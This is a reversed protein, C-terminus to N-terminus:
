KVATDHSVNISSGKLHVITLCMLWPTKIISVKNKDSSFKVLLSFDGFTSIKFILSGMGTVDTKLQSYICVHGFSM